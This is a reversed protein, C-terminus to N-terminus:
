FIYILLGIVGFALGSFWFMLVVSKEKMGCLEFHHHIPAMKFIRKGNRLKYSGVQLVVSVVEIVFIMGIYVLMMEENLLLAISALLGGIALSGVDGMFLKAPKKNFYLYALLAGIVGSLFIMILENNQLYAIVMFCSFAIISLGACLGDLGDSLNTGNTTATFMVLIFLPYVFGLNIEINLLPLVLVSDIHNAILLYIGITLLVQLLFKISPKLGDNNHKVVILYDDIFGILGYGLYSIILTLGQWSLLAQYDLIVFIITPVIVFYLGGMIPTGSKSIHSQPGEKRVSQKIKLSKLFPILIKPIIILGLGLSLIFNLLIKM